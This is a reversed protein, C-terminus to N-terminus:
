WEMETRDSTGRGSRCGRWLIAVLIGLYGVTLVVPAVSIRMRSFTEENFSVGDKSAGGSLLVYGLIILLASVLFFIVNVRGFGYTEM